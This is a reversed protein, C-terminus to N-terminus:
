LQNLIEKAKNIYEQNKETIEVFKVMRNIEVESKIKENLRNIKDEIEVIESLTDTAEKLKGQKIYYNFLSLYLSSKNEYTASNLPNYMELKKTTEIAKEIQGNQAYFKTANTLLKFDYKGLEVAKDMNKISEQIEENDEKERAITNSISAYDALYNPSFPNLTSALEFKKMGEEVEQAQVAKIGQMAANSAAYNLTSGLLLVASLAVVIYIAKNGISISFKDGKTILGLEMGILTWLIIAMAALSLDFDIASHGLIAAVTVFIGVVINKVEVDNSKRYFKYISFVYIGLTVALVAIGLTGIEVWVQMFYNHAETTWYAYSQYAKYITKWGDGGIGLIPNDKIIKFADKYFVARETVTETSLSISGIRQALDPPLLGLIADRFFLAVVPIAVVAIPVIFNYIKKNLNLKLLLKEIGLSIAISIILGLLIWLWGITKNVGELVMNFKNVILIFGILNGLFNSIFSIKYEVSVLIYYMFGIVPLLVWAGRSYSLIFGAFMIFTAASFLHKKVGGSNAAMNYALFLIALCYAGFTNHYQLTSNIMGGVYAGNYNFAELATGLGIFVVIIGSLILTTIAKKTREIDTILQKALILLLLYNIYKLSVQISSNISAAFFTSIIYLIPILLFGVETITFNKISDNKRQLFFYLLFTISTIIHVPLLEKQFYLGRFFPALFILGCLIYFFPTNNVKTKSAIM